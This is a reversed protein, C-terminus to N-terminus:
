IRWLIYCDKENSNSKPSKTITFKGGENELRRLNILKYTEPSVLVNGYMSYTRYVWEYSLIPKEKKPPQVYVTEYKSARRQKKDMQELPKEGTVLEVVDTVGHLSDVNIEKLKKMLIKEEVKENELWEEDLSYYDFIKDAYIRKSALYREAREKSTLSM